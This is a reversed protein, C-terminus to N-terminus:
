FLKLEAEIEKDKIYETPIKSLRFAIQPILLSMNAEYNLLKAIAFHSFPKTFDNLSDVISKPYEYFVPPPFDQELM